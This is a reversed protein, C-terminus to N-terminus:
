SENKISTSFDINEFSLKMRQCLVVGVKPTIQELYTMSRTSTDFHKLYEQM